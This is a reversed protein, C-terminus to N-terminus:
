FKVKISLQAIRPDSAATISGFGGSGRSQVPDSFNTRNLMNFYEARFELSTSERVPFARVLAADWDFYGPGRLSGRTANGFTGIAPLAFANPNIYGVCRTQKGACAEDGYAPQGTVEARDQLLGTQSRDSGAVVELPDGTYSQMIGSTEWNNVVARLPAFGSSLKPLQAVYSATFVSQRDFDSPGYDLRKYNPMYIPFVYSQGPQSDGITTGFPINDLSKSWTYNAMLTLGRSVRRQITLQLSNYSENGSMAAETINSYDLFHRRQNTNLTSGPIYTAPNLELATEIHSSHSGVYALRVLMNASLQQELALNWNYSVPVQYNGSPDFTKVLVPLPFVTDHPAPFPTPFPNTIGLYPNSFPGEPNTLSETVSFPTNEGALSNFRGEQRTDYFIGSGGRLVLQGDGRLDWAFGLRPEFHNYSARLGQEPVGADGPFLLGPPANTYITSTRGAAYAAPSFLTTRHFIEQWPRFPDYRLGYDLTLRHNVKWSDQAYLGFFQNRDNTYQGNGQSFQYMYGLLFSAVAYNTTDSNFTFNGHEQYDNNIDIKSTEAYVGFALNHGGRVWHLDDILTANNREFAAIESEGVTFFGTTAISSIMKPGPPQYIDVGFDAVDPTGDVPGRESVERNYNLVINNLLSSTFTHTDSLLASQVRINAYNTLTLLNSPDLIGASDFNDYYYHGFLHDSSGIEQDVRGLYESYVQNVPQQYFVQGNGSVSPLDKVFALAAPDFRSTPIQNNPFPSGTSPDVIQVAQGLPNAPNGASLLGSFDGAIDAQTPVFASAGGQRDHDVTRQYGFFFFTHQGSAVHPIKVPGGITGGFQNRHLPDVTSAFYNRANFAGNRLFEFGDGHFDTGGSKTVINVVGGANQGYEAQYNSTQVSFEQLADPFPFPQNVNTFEDNNNGGDLRYDTQDARSGNAAITVVVPFTKTSGQDDGENPAAVVGAVLTTLQAANRGNLPLENVSATNIVESLTGTTTDPLTANAGVTVTQSVAGAHLTFNATASQDAELVVAELVANSFGPAAASLSYEAPPLSPFVYSGSSNATARTTIATKKEVASIVASPVVAGSSDTVTGQISGFGQSFLFPTPCVFFLSLLVLRKM